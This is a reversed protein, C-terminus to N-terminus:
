FAIWDSVMQMNEQLDMRLQDREATVSTVTALLKELEEASTQAGANQEREARVSQLEETLQNVQLYGFLFM